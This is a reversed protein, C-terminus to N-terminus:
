LDRAQNRDIKTSWRELNTAPVSFREPCGHWYCGDIFLAVRVRTFLLDTARCLGPEPRANVRYRLGNAQVLRRM